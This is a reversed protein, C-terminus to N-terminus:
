EPNRMYIPDDVMHVKTDPKEAYINEPNKQTTAHLLFMVGRSPQVSKRGM